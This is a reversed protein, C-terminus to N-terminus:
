KIDKCCQDVWSILVDAISQGFLNYVEVSYHVHDKNMLGQNLWKDTQKMSGFRKNIDILAFQENHAMYRITNSAKLSQRNFSYWTKYRRRRLRTKHRFYSAPPTTLIIPLNPLKEELMSFFVKMNFRLKDASFKESYCDNTGLSIILLDPEFDVIKQIHESTSFTVYTAGNIGMPQVNILIGYKNQLENRIPDTCHGKKIHSDGLHLIRVAKGESKSFAIKQLIDSFGKKPIFDLDQALSQSLSFGFLIILM